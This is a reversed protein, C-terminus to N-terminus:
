HCSNNVLPMFQEGHDHVLTADHTSVRREWSNSLAATALWSAFRHGFEASDAQGQQDNWGHVLTEFWDQAELPFPTGDNDNLITQLTAARAGWDLYQFNRRSMCAWMYALFASNAYCSSGSNNLQLELLLDRLRQRDLFTLNEESTESLEEREWPRERESGPPQDANTTLSSGTELSSPQATQGVDRAPVLSYESLPRPDPVLRGLRSSLTSPAM